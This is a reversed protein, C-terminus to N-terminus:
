KLTVICGERYDLDGDLTPFIREVGRRQERALMAAAAPCASRGSVDIVWVSKDTDLSVFARPEKALALSPLTFFVSALFFSRM